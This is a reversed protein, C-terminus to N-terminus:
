RGGGMEVVPVEEVMAFWEGGFEVMDILRWNGHKPYDDTVLEGAEDFEVRLRLTRM